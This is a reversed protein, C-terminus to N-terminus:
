MYRSMRWRRISPWAAVLCIRGHQRLMYIYICLSLSLSFAMSGCCTYQWAAVIPNVYIPVHALSTYIAMSGCSMYPWAAAVYICMYRYIYIHIYVAMSGCCTAPKWGHGVMALWPREHGVMALWQGLNDSDLFDFRHSLVCLVASRM